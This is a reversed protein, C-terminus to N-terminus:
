EEGDDVPYRGLRPIELLVRHAGPLRGFMLWGFTALTILWSLALAAYFWMPRYSVSVQHVGPPIAIGQFLYDTRFYPVAAGDLVWHFGPYYSETLVLWSPQSAEVQLSWNGPANEVLEVTGTAEMTCGALGPAGEVVAMAEPSTNRLVAAFAAEEPVSETCGVLFSRPLASANDYVWVGDGSWLPQLEEGRVESASFVFRAGSLDLLHKAAWLREWREPPAQPAFGLGVAELYRENRTMRLPSPLGVDAVGWQLAMNSPMLNRMLKVPVRKEVTTMRYHNSIGLLPLASEPRKELHDVAVRPMYEFGFLFLDTILLGMIIQAPGNFGLVGRRVLYWPITVGLGVFLAWAVSLNLPNTGKKLQEVVEKARVEAAERDRAEGGQETGEARELRETLWTVIEPESQRLGLNGAGLMVGCLLVILIGGIGARRGWESPYRSSETLRDMGTGALLAAALTVWMGARASFRFFEMGPIWRIIPFFPSYSGLMIVLGAVGLVWWTRTRRTWGAFLLMLATPIGIYFCTEWYSVGRGIYGGARHGYVMPVDIPREYGFVKPLVGNVLEEPPLSGLAAAGQGLGSGRAGFQMLELTAGWQPLSIGAALALSLAAGLLPVWGRLLRLQVLQVGVVVLAGLTALYAGQPHGCLWAMGTSFGLLAWWAGGFRAGQLAALLMWPFWGMVQFFGLYVLHSIMFGSFGYAVAAILAATSSRGEYRALLFVGWLALLHHLGISWNLAMTTPLLMWLLINPPYLAGGQSEAVFPFGHGIPAWLPLQGAAWQAGSWARWPYHHHALDHYFWSSYGLWAEGCWVAIWFTILALAPRDFRTIV